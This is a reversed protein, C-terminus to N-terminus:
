KIPQNILNQVQEIYKTLDLAKRLEELRHPIAHRRKQYSKSKPIRPSRMQRGMLRQQLLNPAQRQTSGSSSSSIPAYIMNSNLRQVVSSTRPPLKHVDKSTLPASSSTVPVSSSYPPKPNTVNLVMQSGGPLATSRQVNM